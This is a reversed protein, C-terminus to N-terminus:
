RVVRRIYFSSGRRPVVVRFRIYNTGPRLAVSHSFRYAKDMTAAAGNVFVQSGPIAIGKVEISGAGVRLGNRPHVIQIDPTANDYRVLLKWSKLARVLSGDAARGAAYWLYTGEGIKGPKLQASTTRTSVNVLPKGLNQERFVKLSYKSAGDVARWKFTFTPLRNQYFVTTNGYSEHITNKPRKYNKLSRYSTDRVLILRGKEPKGPAGSGDVPRVQWFVSGRGVGTLTLTNRTIVDAFLPRALSARRSVQVLTKPAGDGKKWRFTVPMKPDNVFVRVTGMHRVQFPAQPPLRPGVVKGGNISADMGAELTLTRDKSKLEAQGANVVVVVKGPGKRRIRVDVRKYSVKPTITVGDITFSAGAKGAKGADSLRIEGKLHKLNSGQKDDTGETVLMLGPGAFLTGKGKEHGFVMKARRGLKIRTGPSVEMWRGRRVRKFRRAGPPKVMIAGRGVSRLFFVMPAATVVEADAAGADPKPPAADPKAPATLVMIGGAVVPQTDGGPGEVVANGYSVVVVPKGAQAGEGSAVITAKASAGLRVKRQGVVITLESAEVKSGTGLISGETLELSLKRGQQGSRFHVVSNPKITLRGGNRTALTITGDAGTELRAGIQVFQGKAVPKLPAGVKLSAEAKGAHSEVKAVWNSPPDKSGCGLFLLATLPLVARM